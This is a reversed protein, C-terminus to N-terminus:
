KSQLSLVVEVPAGPKVVVDKAVATGFAENWAEIQYTGAPVDKFAFAGDEGTTGFYPHDVVFAFAKMWPHVDCNMAVPGEPQAFWWPFQQGKGTLTRNTGRAASQIKVNHQVPDSNKFLVIQGPFVGFVHPEFMCGVQDVVVHEAPRAFVRGELGKTIRVFAHRVLGNADVIGAAPDRPAPYDRCVDTGMTLTRAEPATGVLRVKGTVGGLTAKDLPTPTPAPPPVDDGCGPCAAVAFVLLLLPAARLAGRRFRLKTSNM